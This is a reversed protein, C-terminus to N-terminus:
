FMRIQDSDIPTVMYDAKLSLVHEGEDSCGGSGGVGLRALFYADGGPVDGSVRAVAILTMQRFRTLIAILRNRM